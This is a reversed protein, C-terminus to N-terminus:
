ATLRSGFHGDVHNATLDPGQLLRLLSLRTTSHAPPSSVYVLILKVDADVECGELLQGGVEDVKRRGVAHLHPRNAESQKYTTCRGGFAFSFSM